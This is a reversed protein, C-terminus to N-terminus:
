SFHWKIGWISTSRGINTPQQQKEMKKKNNNNNRNINSIKYNWMSCFLPYHFWCLEKICMTYQLVTQPRFLFITLDLALLPLSIKLPFPTNLSHCSWNESHNVYYKKYWSNHITHIIYNGYMSKLKQTSNIQQRDMIDTQTWINEVNVYM